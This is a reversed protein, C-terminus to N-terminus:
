EKNDWEQGYPDTLNSNSDSNINSKINTNDEDIQNEDEDKRLLRKSLGSMKSQGYGLVEIVNIKYVDLKTKKDIYCDLGGRVLYTEGQKIKAYAKENLEVKFFQHNGEEPPIYGEFQSLFEVAGKVYGSAGYSTWPKGNKGERTIPEFITTIKIFFILNDVDLNDEDYIIYGFIM